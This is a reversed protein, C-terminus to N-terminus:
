PGDLRGRLRRAGGAGRGRAAALAGLGPSVVGAIGFFTGQGEAPGVHAPRVGLLYRALGGVLWDYSGLNVLVCM